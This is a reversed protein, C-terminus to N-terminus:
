PATLYKYFYILEDDADYSTLSYNYKENLEIIRNQKKLLYLAPYATHNIIWQEQNSQIDSVWKETFLVSQVLQAKWNPIENIDNFATVWISFRDRFDSLSENEEKFDRWDTVMGLSFNSLRLKMAYKIMEDSSDELRIFDEDLWVKKLVENVEKMFPKNLFNLRLHLSFYGKSKSLLIEYQYINNTNSDHFEFINKKQVFGKQEFLPGIVKAIDSIVEDRTTKNM